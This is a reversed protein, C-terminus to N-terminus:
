FLSLQGAKEAELKKKTPRPLVRAFDEGLAGELRSAFKYLKDLYHWRDEDGAYDELLGLSGDDRQYVTLTEGVERDAAVDRARKKADSSFTKETIRERRAFQEPPLEGHTIQRSLEEYDAALGALDGSVLYDMARALFERGFLEDARSRLSAGKFIRRGHYDVLVYNKIKLSVMTEYRGDHALRIGKPLAKGAHEVYRVEDEETEVGPPPIFYVGDTDIEILRSGTRELEDAVQKVLEQGKTTVRTAAEFDNFLFTPAGLYGYFSNILIKFSAQLGDWYAREPGSARSRAKADLRRATLERLM